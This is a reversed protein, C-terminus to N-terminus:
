PFHLRSAKASPLQIRRLSTLVPNGAQITTGSVPLDAYWRGTRQRRTEKASLFQLPSKAYIIRKAFMRGASEPPTWEYSEGRCLRRQWDIWPIRKGDAVDILEMSACWRPNIELLWWQGETDEILDIGFWGRLDLKRSLWHAFEIVVETSPSQQVPGISGRYWLSDERSLYPRFM